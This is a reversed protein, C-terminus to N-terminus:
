ALGALTSEALGLRRVLDLFRPDSYLSKFYPYLTIWVMAGSRVHYTRELWALAEEAEGLRAYHAAIHFTDFHWGNWRRLDHELQKQRFGRLGDSDWGAQLEGLVASSAGSFRSAKMYEEAAEAERGTEELAIALNWHPLWVTPDMEITRRYQEIAADWQDAFSLMMGVVNNIPISLPDIALARRASAVAEHRRGTLALVTAYAHHATAYNPNLRIASEFEAEAGPWDWEYFLRVLALSTHSEALYADLVLAQLAAANAKPMAERPAMRGFAYGRYFYTDALGSHALAYGPEKEIAQEFYEKARALNEETRKNWFYRGRLYCEYATPDMRGTAGARSQEEDTLRVQIQGAITQAVEAQLQLVDVLDREYCEAWLHAEHRADILQATIRFRDGHRRVTGEVVADVNLARAIDPLPRRVRKYQQVSTRSIVRLAGFKALATILEDTMGDAFYEQEPDESLNELPLVALSRITSKEAQPSVHHIAGIFRYGRRSLTEVFRPKQANDRLASRIQRLSFNLSHEFDVFTHEDWIKNRLEERTVVEGPRSILVALIRAPQPQLPVTKGDKRLVGSQMEFEFSGFRLVSNRLSDM